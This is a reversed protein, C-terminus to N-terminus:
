NYLKQIPVCSCIFIALDSMSSNTSCLWNDCDCMSDVNAFRSGRPGAFDGLGLGGTSLGLTSFIKGMGPLIFVVKM